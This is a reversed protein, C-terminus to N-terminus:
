EQHKQWSEEELLFWEDALQIDRQARKLAGEKLRKNLNAQTVADVYFKVAREIFGSRNGNKALRDILGITEEPLTINIRHQM